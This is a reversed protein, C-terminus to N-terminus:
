SVKREARLRRTESAFDRRTFVIKSSSGRSVHAALDRPNHVGTGAEPDKMVRVLELLSLATM